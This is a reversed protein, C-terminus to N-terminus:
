FVLPCNELEFADLLINQLMVTWFMCKVVHHIWCSLYATRRRRQRGRLLVLDNVFDRIKPAAVGALCSVHLGTGCTAGTSPWCARGCPAAVGAEGQRRWSGATASRILRAINSPAAVHFPPRDPPEESCGNSGAGAAVYTYMHLIPIAGIPEPWFRLPFLDLPFRFHPSLDPSMM